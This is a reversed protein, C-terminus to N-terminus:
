FDAKEMNRIYERFCVGSEDDGDVAIFGIKSLADNLRIRGTLPEFPTALNSGLL